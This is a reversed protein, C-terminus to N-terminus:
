DVSDHSLEAQMSVLLAELTAFGRRENTRADQLSFRWVMTERGAHFSQEQWCRVIYSLYRPAKQPFEQRKV